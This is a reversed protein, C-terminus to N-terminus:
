NAERMISHFKVYPADSIDDILPAQEFSSRSGQGSIQLPPDFGFRTGETSPGLPRGPLSSLFLLDASGLAESAWLYLPPLCADSTICLSRKDM